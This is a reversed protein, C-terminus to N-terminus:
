EDPVDCTERYEGLGSMHTDWELETFNRGAVKCVQDLWTAPDLSWRVVGTSTSALMWDGSPDLTAAFVRNRATPLPEGLMVGADLDYVAVGGGDMTALLTGDDASVELDRIGASSPARLEALPELDLDLVILRSSSGTIILDGGTVVSAFYDAGYTDALLEGTSTDHVSLQWGGNEDDYGSFVVTGGDETTDAFLAPGRRAFEVGSSEGTRPDLATVVGVCCDMDYTVDGARSTDVEATTFPEATREYDHVPAPWSQGTTVDYYFNEREATVTRIIGSGAWYANTGPLSLVAEEEAVNWVTYDRTEAFPAEPEELLVWEGSPDFGASVALGPAVLEGSALAGDLRWRGISPSMASFFLVEDGGERVWMEGPDGIQYDLTRGTPAGTDMRRETIGTAFDHLFVTDTTPSPAIRRCGEPFEQRWVLEGDADLRVAGLAGCTITGGDDAAVIELDATGEPITVARTVEFTDPDVSLLEGSATGVLLTDDAAFGVAGAFNRAPEAEVALESEFRVRADPVDVVVIGGDAPVYAAYRGSPSLAYTNVWRELLTPEGGVVRGSSLDIVTFWSGFAELASPDEADPDLYDTAVTAISGDASVMVFPRRTSFPKPLELDLTRDLEGTDVNRIEPYQRDRLVLATDTGPIMASGIRDETGPVFMNEVGDASALVALLQGRTRPDEPWRRYSEAAILASVIRNSDQLAASSNTLSDIRADQAVAAESSASRLALGGAVLAVVLMGVVGAIAFRLRRNQRREAAAAAELARKEDQEHALSADLYAVEVPSLSPGLRERLEIITQLRGGRALDDDSRGGDEWAQAGTELHGLVMLDEAGEQVWARFRPWARTLSEHALVVSDGEVSVLRAHALQGFLRAHAPDDRLSAAFLRRRVPLGDPALAVLQLMTSRCLAQDDSDLGSYLRDASQAIAGGIGGTAEYGAVTLVPGERRVWTEALAHSLHPLVGPAGAADRLILEVLGPELRLGARAAPEEIVRRLDDDGMPSVVLVSESLMPGLSPDAACRDLFDSRVTIIARGGDRVFAALLAAVDGAIGDGSQLVEEFQDVVVADTSTRGSTASRLSDAIAPDPGLVLVRRGRRRLSPVVGARVLSSKGSGSAGTVVLLGIADLRRTATAIEDERGFFDDADREQYTGLGRYPCDTRMPAAPLGSSLAEDQRLIAAELQQIEQGADVGLEDALRERASRLVALADAQRGARYCALALLTWRSERLPEDRVLREAEPIVGVADGADLRARLMGEGAEVRLHELDSAAATAEPWGSIEEYPRGRWLDLGRRYAAGARDPEGARHLDRARSVLAEFRRADIEDPDIDLHYGVATTVIRAAGLTKRLRAIAAQIQKNWTAPPDTGSWVVEALEQATIPQGDRVVLAALVALERPYLSASEVRVPGLVDIAM